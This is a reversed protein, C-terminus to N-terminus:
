KKRKRKQMEEKEKIMMMVIKLKIEDMEEEEEKKWTTEGEREEVWERVRRRGEGKAIAFISPSFLCVHKAQAKNGELNM